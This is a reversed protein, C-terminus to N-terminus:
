VLPLLMCFFGFFVVTSDFGCFEYKIFGFFSKWSTGGPLYPEVQFNLMAQRCVFQKERRKDTTRQWTSSIRSSLPNWRSTLFQSVVSLRVSFCQKERRKDTMRQWTAAHAHKYGNWKSWCFVM